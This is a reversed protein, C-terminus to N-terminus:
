SSSQQFNYRVLLEDGAVVNRAPSHLSSALLMGSTGDGKTNVSVFLGGNVVASQNFTFVARSASNSMLGAASVGDKVWSPRTVEDYEANIETFRTGIHVYLDDAQPTYANSYLGIYWNSIASANGLVVDNFHNLGATPVLNFEKWADIIKGERRLEFSFVGGIKLKEINEINKM